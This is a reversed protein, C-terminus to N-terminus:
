GDVMNRNQLTTEKCIRWHWHAGLARIDLEQSNAMLQFPPVNTSQSFRFRYMLYNFEDLSLM